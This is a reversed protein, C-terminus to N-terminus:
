SFKVSCPKIKCNDLDSPFIFYLDIIVIIIYAIKNLFPPQRSISSHIKLGLSHFALSSSSKSEVEVEVNYMVYVMQVAEVSEVM